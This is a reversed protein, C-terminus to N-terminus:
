VLMCLPSAAITGVVYVGCLVFLGVEFLLFESLQVKEVDLRLHRHHLRLTSMFFKHRTRAVHDAVVLIEDLKVLAELWESTSMSGLEVTIVLL